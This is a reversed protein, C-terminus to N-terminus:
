DRSRYYDAEIEALDENLKIHRDLYAFIALRLQTVPDQLNSGLGLWAQM